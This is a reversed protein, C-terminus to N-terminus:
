CTVFTPYYASWRGAAGICGCANLAFGWDTTFGAFSGDAGGIPFGSPYHDPPFVYVTPDYFLHVGSPLSKGGPLSTLPEVLRKHAFYATTVLGSPDPPDEQCTGDDEKWALVNPPEIDCDPTFPTQEFPDPMSLFIEAQWHAGALDDFPFSYPFGFVIQNPFREVTPIADAGLPVIVVAVPCAGHYSFQTVSCTLCGPTAAYWAPVTGAFAPLLPRQNFTYELHVGTKQSASNFKSWDVGAGTMYVATPLASSCDFTFSTDSIRTLSAGSVLPTTM